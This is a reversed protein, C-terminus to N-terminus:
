KPSHQRKMREQLEALQCDIEDLTGWKEEDNLLEWNQVTCMLTERLEIISNVGASRHHDEAICKSTSVSINRMNTEGRQDNRDLAVVIEELTERATIAQERDLLVAVDGNADLSVGEHDEAFLVAYIREGGAYEASEDTVSAAIANSPLARDRDNTETKANMDTKTTEDTM